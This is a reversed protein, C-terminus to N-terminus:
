NNLATSGEGIQARERGGEGRGVAGRTDTEM